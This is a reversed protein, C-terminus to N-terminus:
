VRIHAHLYARVHKVEEFRRNPDWALLMPVSLCAMRLVCTHLYARVHKVKEDVRIDVVLAQIISYGYNSM